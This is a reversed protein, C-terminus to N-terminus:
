RLERGYVKEAVQQRFDIVGPYVLAARFFIRDV